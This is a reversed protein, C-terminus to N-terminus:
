KENDKKANAEEESLERKYGCSKDACVILPKNKKRYLMKGCDPCKEALPIDWSSFKCEPYRECSYFYSNNKGSMRVIKAGCEPCSVGTDKTIRKTNKCKPYNSCAYFSGYRGSRMVMPSGCKECKMDTEKVDAKESRTIPKGDRGLPKTNKCKPYNPCAAFKGYRGNKIVMKAGCNECVIDTEEPPIEIKSNALSDTASKLEKAFDDYFDSLVGTMTSKGSEIEDLHTELSATFKYDVIDPFNKIMLDNTTEGLPTPVLSKGERKIYNRSIVTTVISAFTSPRGIGMEELAKVLSAETYRAPPETFHQEPKISKKILKDGSKFEPLKSDKDQSDSDEYVALYGPFRLLSGSAHFVYGSNDIEANVTDYSASEMQSAIFRSWILKYLKYQESSLRDKIMDPALEVRSPRIAEHADQANKGSKYVRAKKPYYKEGYRGLIYTKAADAAVSSVRLSDTRMYTILGTVGGNDQGLNIGEYLEQAVKMVRQIQFGLKRSAEQQLTSTIFPPQPNKSRVSKKVKGVIFDGNNIAGLIKDADEKTKLEIKGSGDGYFKAKFTEKSSTALTAEITWYEDPVFARIENERECVIRTAVSQVRGASLGSRLTKWLFPSIKYGVIRDLIRRAQQSNVLDMDIDRPHNMAEKIAPKTIENFTVRKTKSPDLELATSLHWSIAEGERDPDTALYVKSANDAEKKLDKILDSKGRINIYHPMFNKDIDVGLTTKPLDRVHGFSAMVKYGSGLAAKITPAKSPSEIIILNSAM